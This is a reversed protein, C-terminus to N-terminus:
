APDWRNWGPPKNTGTVAPLRPITRSERRPRPCRDKAIQADPLKGHGLCTAPVPLYSLRARACMYTTSKQATM